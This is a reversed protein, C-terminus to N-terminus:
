FLKSYLLTQIIVLTYLGAVVDDLVIGFGRPLREAQQAPAPKVIDFFRFLLFALALTAVSLPNAFNAIMFGLIEDVVISPPDKSALLEAAKGSWWIACATLAILALVALYPSHFALQNLALSFPIALLTGFTGPCRPLYGVGAGSAALLVLGPPLAGPSLIRIRLAPVISLRRM